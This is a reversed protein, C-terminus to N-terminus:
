GGPASRSSWPVGTGIWCRVTRSVRGRAPAGGGARVRAPSPVRAGVDVGVDALEAWLRQVGYRQRTVVLVRGGTDIERRIIMAATRTKGTGAAGVVVLVPPRASAAALIRLQDPDADGVWGTAKADPDAARLTM